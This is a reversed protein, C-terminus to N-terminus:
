FVNLVEPNCYLEGGQDLVVLKNSVNPSYEQLFLELYKIPSAKSLRTDGHFMKTQANSINIWTTKGNIVKIDKHSSPIVRGEKDYSICGSFGFDIFLGQYPCTVQESLSQNIPSNKWLNAKICTM